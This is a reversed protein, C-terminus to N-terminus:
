VGEMMDTHVIFIDIVLNLFTLYKFAFFFSYKLSCIYQYLCIDIEDYCFM